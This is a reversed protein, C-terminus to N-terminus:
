NNAKYTAQKKYSADVDTKVSVKNRRSLNCDINSGNCDEDKKGCHKGV